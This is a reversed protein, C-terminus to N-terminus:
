FAWSAFSKNSAALRKKYESIEWNWVSKICFSKLLQMLFAKILIKMLMIQLESLSTPWQLKTWEDQARYPLKNGSTGFSIKKNVRNAWSSFIAQLFNHGDGFYRSADQLQRHGITFHGELRGKTFGSVHLHSHLAFSASCFHMLRCFKLESVQAQSHLARSYTLHLSKLEVYQLHLQRSESASFQVLFCNKLVVVHAQWSLGFFWNHKGTM